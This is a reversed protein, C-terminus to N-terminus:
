QLALSSELWERVYLEHPPILRPSLAAVEEVVNLRALGIRLYRIGIM